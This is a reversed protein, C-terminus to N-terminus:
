DKPKPGICILKTETRVFINGQSVAPSAKMVENFLSNKGVLKFEGDAKFIIVESTLEDFCYIKGNVLTPSVSHKGGIREQWAIEGTKADFCTAVGKDTVSFVHPAAYLLSALPPVGKKQEWAIHTKTVDGTGDARIVRITPAEFGSCSFVHGDGVVVSPSVGEGQSYITWVLKGSAVEHGQVVDGAGSVIQTEGNVELVCPSGHSLRSPGRDGRWKMEGTETDVALLFAENWPIKWGVKNNEGDSSGDYPMVLLGDVLIPSSSLGHHSYFKVDHNVWNLQGSFDVAAISGSGFVAYVRKGDTTPTPTAYSNEGRKHRTEQDFVKKDWLLAGTLRDFAVVHCSIGENTTGSIFVRDGFVIPSSWGEFNIETKWAINISDSWQTPAISEQSVGQGNPGRFGTWNQAIATSGIVMCFLSALMVLRSTFM